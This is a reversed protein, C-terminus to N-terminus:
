HLWCRIQFVILETCNIIDRKIFTWAIDLQHLISCNAMETSSMYHCSYSSLLVLDASTWTLFRYELLIQLCVSNQGQLGLWFSGAARTCLLLPRSQAEWNDHAQLQPIRPAITQRHEFMSDHPDALAEFHFSSFRRPLLKRLLDIGSCQHPWMCGAPLLLWNCSSCCQIM